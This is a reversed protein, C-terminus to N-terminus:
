QGELWVNWFYCYKMVPHSKTDLGKIRSSAVYYDYYDGLKILYVQSWFFKQFEKWIKFRKQFGVTATLEHVLREKEPDTWWGPYKDSLSCIISPDGVTADNTTFIDWLDPNVRRSVLTAWDYVQLDINFGAARLQQVGVLAMDYMFKYSTTTMFRIPQGHYGAEKALQRAKAPNAQNYPETGYTTYWITGPPYISGDLAWLDQPGFAAQMIPKMDLAALIAQRLKVNAMLGKKTNFIYYPYSAPKVLLTQLNPDNHLDNYLDGPIETAYDYMGSKLGAVRTEVEPVPIFEIADLYATRAGWYGSAEGGRSVYDKFRVLRLYRGPLWKDFKYPGTGICKEPPLPKDGGEEAIEKPIIIAGGNTFALIATLAGCPQKLYMKVTYKDPATMHDVFPKLLPGRPTYKLFRNLSAIVDESTMEKENQFLVGRRLHFTAVLGDDSIEYTDVLQPRPKLNADDEFLGEFIHHGILTSIDATTMSMDLMPPEDFIAVKLTGGYKPASSSQALAVAGVLVMGVFMVVALRKLM